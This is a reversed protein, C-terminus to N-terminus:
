LEEYGEPEGSTEAASGICMAYASETLRLLTGDLPPPPPQGGAVGEDEAAESTTINVRGMDDDSIFMGAAREQAEDIEIDLLADYLQQDIDADIESETPGEREQQLPLQMGDAEYPVSAGEGDDDNQGDFVFGGMEATLDMMDAQHEQESTVSPSYEVGTAPQQQRGAEAHQLPPTRPIFHYHIFSMVQDRDEDSEWGELMRARAQWIERPPNSAGFDYLDHADTQLPPPEGRDLFLGSNHPFSIPCNPWQCTPNLTPMIASTLSYPRQLPCRPAYQNYAMEAYVFEEEITRPPTSATPNTPTPNRRPPM